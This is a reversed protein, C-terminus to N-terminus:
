NWWATLWAPVEMRVPIAPQCVTLASISPRAAISKFTAMRVLAGRPRLKWCLRLRMLRRPRHLASVILVPQPNASITSARTRYYIAVRGIGGGRNIDGDNGGIASLNGPATVSITDGEIRISGGSGGGSQGNSEYGNHGNASITGTWAYIGDGGLNRADLWVIGGGIGGGRGPKSDAGASGRSGGGGSGLYLRELLMDGYTNGGRGTPYGESGYGGGGAIDYNGGDGAGLTNGGSVGYTLGDHGLGGDAAGGAGGGYGLFDALIKGSGSLTGTVRFAIIGFKYSDWTNATLTGNLVMDTYHPRPALIVRQQGTNIGINTDDYENEGYLQVKPSTFYVKDHNISNVTLFEYHGVNAIANVSGGQMNILLVEDGQALCGTSPTVSLVAYSAALTKVSYAVGDGGDTCTHPITNNMNINFTAGAALNLVGSTQAWGTPTRTPTLTRTPTFTPTNTRTPTLTSTATNAALTFTAPIATAQNYLNLRQSETLLANYYRVEDM